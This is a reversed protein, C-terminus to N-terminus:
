ILDFIDIGSSCIVACAVPGALSVTLACAFAASGIKYAPQNQGTRSGTADLLRALRCLINLADPDCQFLLADVILVFFDVRIFLFFLKECDIRFTEDWSENM